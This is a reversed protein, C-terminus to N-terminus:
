KTFQKYGELYARKAKADPQAPFDPPVFFTAGPKIARWLISILIRAHRETWEGTVALVTDSLMHPAPRYELKNVVLRAHEDDIFTAKEPLKDDPWPIDQPAIQKETM